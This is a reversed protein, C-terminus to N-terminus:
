HTAWTLSARAAHVYKRPRDAITGYSGRSSM